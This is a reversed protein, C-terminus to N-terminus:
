LWNHVLSVLFPVNLFQLYPDYFFNPFLSYEPRPYIVSVYSGVEPM